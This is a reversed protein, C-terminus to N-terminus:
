EWFKCRVRGPTPLAICASAQVCLQTAGSYLPSNGLLLTELPPRDQGKQQHWFLERLPLSSLAAGSVVPSALLDWGRSLVDILSVLFEEFKGLVQGCPGRPQCFGSVRWNKPQILPLFCGAPLLSLGPVLTQPIPACHSM